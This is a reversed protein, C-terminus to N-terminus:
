PTKLDLIKIISNYTDKMEKGTSSDGHHKLDEKLKEWLRNRDPQFYIHKINVPNHM